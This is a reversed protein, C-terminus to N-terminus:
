SPRTRRHSVCAWTSPTSTTRSFGDSWVCPLGATVGAKGAVDRPPEQICGRPTLPTELGRVEGTGQGRDGQPGAKGTTSAM